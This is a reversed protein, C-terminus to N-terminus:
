IRCISTSHNWKWCNKCQPVGPNMNTGQITTIFKGINFRQNILSKAKSGSQADWIDIWIIAMNSKPSIKVIRSKSALVINNFIHNNKLIRKVEKSTICTNTTEFLYPISIIKLHSKSQPLRSSQVQDTDVSFISKVYKKITQLDSPSVINNTTIVISKSNIHIYDVMTNSKINKLTQNINFVHVSLDKIFNNVSVEKMPVIVQKCSPGKTTM